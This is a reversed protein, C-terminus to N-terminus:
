TLRVDGEVVALEDMFLNWFYTTMDSITEDSPYNGPIATCQLLFNLLLQLQSFIEQSTSVYSVSTNQVDTESTFSLITKIHTTGFSSAVKSLGEATYLDTAQLLSSDRFYLRM